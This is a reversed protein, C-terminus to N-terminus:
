AGLGNRIDVIEVERSAGDIEISPKDGRQQGMLAQALPTQYNLVGKSPDADPPGLLTYSRLKGDTDKIQVRSGVSVTDTRVIEATIIKARAIDSELQRSKAEMLGQKERAAHYEANERLDGFERARAIEARNAPMDVNRLQDLEARLRALGESTMYLEHSAAAAAEDAVVGRRDRM